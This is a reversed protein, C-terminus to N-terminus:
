RNQQKQDTQKKQAHQKTNMTEDLAQDVNGTFNIQQEPIGQKKM